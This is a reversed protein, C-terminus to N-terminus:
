HYFGPISYILGTHKKKILKMLILSIELYDVFTLCFHNFIYILNRTTTNQGRLVNRNSIDTVYM